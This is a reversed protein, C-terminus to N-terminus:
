PAEGEELADLYARAALITKTHEPMEHDALDATDYVGLVNDLHDIQAERAEHLAIYALALELALADLAADAAHKHQSYGRLRTGDPRIVSTEHSTDWDTFSTGKAEKCYSGHFQVRRGKTADELAAKARKLLDTM